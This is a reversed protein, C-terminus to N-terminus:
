SQRWPAHPTEAASDAMWRTFQVVAAVYLAVLALRGIFVGTMQPPRVEFQEVLFTAQWLGVLISAITAAVKVYALWAGWGRHSLMALNAPVGAVIMLMGAGVELYGTAQLLVDPPGMTMRIFGFAVLLGRLLLLFLDLILVV